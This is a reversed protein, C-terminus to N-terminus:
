AAKETQDTLANSAALAAFIRRRVIGYSHRLQRRNSSSALPFDAKNEKAFERVLTVVAEINDKISGEIADADNDAGILARLDSYHDYARIVVAQVEDTLMKPKQGFLAAFDSASSPLTSTSFTSVNTM